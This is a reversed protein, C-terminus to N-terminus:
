GAISADYSHERQLDPRLPIELIIRSGQGPTSEVHFRGGLSTLREEIGALGLGRRSEPALAARADFGAGDDDVVIRLGHPEWHISVLIEEAHGHKVANNSLEKIARFLYNAVPTGIPRRQGTEAVTMEVDTRQKFETAYRQLTAILGLDDLMAPHLDFTFTRTQHILEDTCKACDLLREHLRTGAPAELAAADLNIKMLSLMQSLSDHIDYALKRRQADEAASLQAALVRLDGQAKERQAIEERLAATRQEVMTALRTGISRWSSLIWVSLISFGLRTLFNWEQLLPNKYIAAGMREAWLCVCASALAMAYGWRRGLLWTALCVPVLYFHAFTLEPGTIADVYGVLALLAFTLLVIAWRPLRRLLQILRQVM